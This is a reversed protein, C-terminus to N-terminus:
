QWDGSWSLNDDPSGLMQRVKDRRARRSDGLNRVLARLWLVILPLCVILLIINM